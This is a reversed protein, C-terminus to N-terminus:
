TEAETAEPISDQALPQQAEAKHVSCCEFRAPIVTSITEYTARIVPQQLLQGGGEGLHVVSLQLVISGRLMSLWVVVDAVGGSFVAAPAVREVRARSM